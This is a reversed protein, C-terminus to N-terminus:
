SANSSVVLVVVVVVVVMEVVVVVVRVAAVVVVLVVVVAVAVARAVKEIKPTGSGSIEGPIGRPHAQPFHHSPQRAPCAPISFHGLGEAQLSQM